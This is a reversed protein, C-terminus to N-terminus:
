APLREPLPKRRIAVKLVVLTGALYCVFGILLMVSYGLNSSITNFFDIVPGILRAVASGACWALNALAMYKGEEGRHLLDSALAWSSSVFAGNAVGLVVATLMLYLETRSFFLFLLGAMGLLGSFVLIPKRGVKDSYRGALFASIIMSGGVVILLNATVAAPNPAKVVDMVYYVAFTNLALVPVAMLGRSIMYYLFARDGGLNVRFSRKVIAILSERPGGTGPAEKITLVTALMCAFLVAGLIGLSTWLGSSGGSTSYRDMFFAIVRAMIGGGLLEVHKIGSALGRKREPVLDPIFAQYPGHATNVTIQLLCYVIFVSALTSWLGMGPLVLLAAVVGILIFPRRRGWRFRSRDSLSAAIPQVIMALGLGAFTLIGLYTNKREEPVLNLILLPLIISQLSWFANIGFGFVTIKVYNIAGFRPGALQSGAVTGMARGTRLMGHVRGTYLDTCLAM